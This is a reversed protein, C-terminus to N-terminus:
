EEEEETYELINTSIYTGFAQSVATNMNITIIKNSTELLFQTYKKFFASSVEEVGKFDIILLANNIEKQIELLINNLTNGCTFTLSKDILRIYYVNKSAFPLRTNQITVGTEELFANVDTTYVVNEDGTRFIIDNKNISVQVPIM